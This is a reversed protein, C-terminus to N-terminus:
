DPRVEFLRRSRRSPGPGPAPALLCRRANGGCGRGPPVHDRCNPGLGQPLRGRHALRAPGRLGAPLDGAAPPVAHGHRPHDAQRPLPGDLNRRPLRGAAPPRRPADPPQHLRRLGPCSGGAKMERVDLWVTHGLAQLDGQLKHALDAADARGYSIFVRRAVAVTPASPPPEATAAAPPATPGAYILGVGKKDEALDNFLLDERVREFLAADNGLLEVLQSNRARGERRLLELVTQRAADFDM